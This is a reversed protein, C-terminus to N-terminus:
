CISQGSWTGNEQLKLRGSNEVFRVLSTQRDPRSNPTVDKGKANLLRVSSLDVCAYASSNGTKSDVQQLRFAVLRAEGRTHLSNSIYYTAAEREASLARQTLLPALQDVGSGGDSTIEDGIELYKLYLMKARSEAQGREVVAVTPTLSAEPLKDFTSSACGALGSAGVVGLVVSISRLTWRRMGGGYLLPRGRASLQGCAM